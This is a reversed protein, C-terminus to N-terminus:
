TKAALTTHQLSKRIVNSRLGVSFSLCVLKCAFLEIELKPSKVSHRPSSNDIDFHEVLKFRVFDFPIRHVVRVGNEEDNDLYPGLNGDEEEFVVNGHRITGGHRIFM